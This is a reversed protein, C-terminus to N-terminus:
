RRLRAEKVRLPALAKRRIDKAVARGEGGGFLMKDLYYGEMIEYIKIIKGPKLRGKNQKFTGAALVVGTDPNIYEERHMGVRYDDMPAALMYYVREMLKERIYGRFHAVPRTPVLSRHRLNIRDRIAKLEQRTCGWVILHVHWSAAAAHGGLVAKNSYYAMDIMAVFSLGRLQRHVWQMLAKPDFEQDADEDVAFQGPTLTMWFGLTPSAGGIRDFLEEFQEVAVDAFAIRAQMNNAHLYIANRPDLERSLASGITRTNKRQRYELVHRQQDLHAEAFSDRDLIPKRKPKRGAQARRNIPSNVTQIAPM